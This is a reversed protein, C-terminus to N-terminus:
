HQLNNIYKRAEIDNHFCTSLDTRRKTKGDELLEVVSIGYLINQYIGKGKSLEIGLTKGNKRSKYYGIIIPTM